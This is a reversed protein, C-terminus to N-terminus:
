LVGSTHSLGSTAVPILLPLPLFPPSRMASGPTLNMFGAQTERKVRERGDGFMAENRRVKVHHGGREARKGRGCARPIEAISYETTHNWVRLMDTSSQGLGALSWGRDGLSGKRGRLASM